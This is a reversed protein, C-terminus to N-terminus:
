RLHQTNKALWAMGRHIRVSITNVSEGLLEAIEVPMLGDLHRMIVVDRYQEPMAQLLAPVRRADLEMELDEKGGDVLEEFASEPVDQEDLIADLSETKKKRYDDIILRNLTRYLFPRFEDVTRGKAM